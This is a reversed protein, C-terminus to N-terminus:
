KENEQEYIMKEHKKLYSQLAWCIVLSEDADVSIITKKRGFEATQKHAWRAKSLAFQASALRYCEENNM